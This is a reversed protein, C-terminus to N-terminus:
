AALRYFRAANAGFFKNRTEDSFQNFFEAVLAHVEEYSAALLCVPWDSGFMVRNEGFAEMVVDLYPRFDEKKWGQLKAETVM